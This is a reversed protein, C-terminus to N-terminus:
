QTVAQPALVHAGPMDPSPTPCGQADMAAGLQGLVRRDDQGPLHCWCPLLLPVRTVAFPCGAADGGGSTAPGRAWPVGVDVSRLSPASMSIGVAGTPTDVAGMPTEVDKHWWGTSKNVVVARQDESAIESSKQNHQCGGSGGLQKVAMLGKVLQNYWYGGFGGVQVM